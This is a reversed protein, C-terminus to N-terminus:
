QRINLYKRVFLLYNITYYLTM